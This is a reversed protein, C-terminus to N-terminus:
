KIKIHEIKVMKFWDSVLMSAKTKFSTRKLIKRSYQCMMYEDVLTIGLNLNKLYENINDIYFYMPANKNGTKKVYRNSIKLAKQSNCDFVAELHTFKYKQFFWCNNRGQFLLVSRFHYAFDTSKYRKHKKVMWRCGSFFM